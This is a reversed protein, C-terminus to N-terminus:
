FKVRLERVYGTGAVRKGILDASLEAEVDASHNELDEVATEVRLKYGANFLEDAIEVKVISRDGAATSAGTIADIDQPKRSLYKWWRPMDPYWREEPGSVYLTREYRGEPNVLYLAFYAEDGVYNNLQVLVTAEKAEARPAIGLAAGFLLASAVGLRLAAKFDSRGLRDSHSFFDMM